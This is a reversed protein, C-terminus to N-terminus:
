VVDQSLAVSQPIKDVAETNEIIRLERPVNVTFELFSSDHRQLKRKERPEDGLLTPTNQGARLGRERLKSAGIVACNTM